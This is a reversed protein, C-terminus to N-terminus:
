GGQRHMCKIGFDKEICSQILQGLKQTSDNVLTRESYGWHWSYPRGTKHFVTCTVNRGKTLRLMTEDGDFYGLSILNLEQGDKVKLVVCDGNNTFIEVMDKLKM